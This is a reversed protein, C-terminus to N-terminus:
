EKPMLLPHTWGIEKMFGHRSFTHLAWDQETHLRKEQCAPCDPQPTRNEPNASM